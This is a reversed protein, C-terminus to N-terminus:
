YPLTFIVQPADHLYTPWLKLDHTLVGYQVAGLLANFMLQGIMRATRKIIIYAQNGVLIM